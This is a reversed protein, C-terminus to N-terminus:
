KLFQSIINKIEESAQGKKYNKGKCLKNGLAFLMHFSTKGNVKAQMEINKTNDYFYNWAARVDSWYVGQENWYRIAPSADYDGKKFKEIGREQCIVKDIGKNRMIKENDQIFVWGDNLIEFHNNRRMVNYDSRKSFERRPLPADCTSQWFHRGDVHVWTGRSEYRLGDDVQYVRQTWTGLIDKKKASKKTWQKDKFFSFLDTSEYHWDQRWHKVIMTDNIILIHQLSIFDEEDQLIEIHEIGWSKYREHYKYGTDSSFTEAFDFSVKYVGAMAKISEIDMEKQKTLNKQASGAAICILIAVAAISSLLYNKM